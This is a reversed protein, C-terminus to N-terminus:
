QPLVLKKKVDFWRLYAEINKKLTVEDLGLNPKMPFKLFFQPPMISLEKKPKTLYKLMATAMAEKTSYKMLYRRYILESPIQQKTHCAICRNEFQQAQPEQTKLSVVLWLCVFIIKGM